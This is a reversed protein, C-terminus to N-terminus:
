SWESEYQDVLRSSSRGASKRNSKPDPPARLRHLNKALSPPTCPCDFRDRHRRVREPLEEATVSIEMGRMEKLSKNMVGRYSPALDVVNINLEKVIAEWLDDRTRPRTPKTGHEKAAESRSDASVHNSGSQNESKPTLAPESQSGAM